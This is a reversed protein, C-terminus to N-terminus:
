HSPPGPPLREGAEIRIPLRNQRPPLPCTAFDTFACPPSYAENFDIVVRGDRPLDSYLFRGGGYTEKPATEDRFIFFLQTAGDEELVPDLRLKRGQLTFEAYGPSLM